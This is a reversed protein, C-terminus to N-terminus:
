DFGRRRADSEAVGESVRKIGGNGGGAGTIGGAEDAGFFDGILLAEVDADGGEVAAMVGDVLVSMKFKAEFVDAALENPRKEVRMGKVIGLLLALTVNAEVARL